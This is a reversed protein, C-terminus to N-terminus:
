HEELDVRVIEGKPTKEKWLVGQYRYIETKKDRWCGAPLGAKWCLNDLFTEVDWNYEVPVQPLLTGSFPGYKIILGDRGIKIEKLYDSPDKVEIKEPPTLVTVEVLIDNLESPEVPPFRPDETAASIAVDITAEVLPKYPIIYGICGRLEEHNNVLKTLTVFVGAKERLIRPTEEPPNIKIGRRVKEEVAKRALRVLFRGHEDTLDTVKLM